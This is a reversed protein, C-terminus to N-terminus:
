LRKIPHPTPPNLINRPNNHRPSIVKRYTSLLYERSEGLDSDMQDPTAEGHMFPNVPGQYNMESLAKLWPTFDVPGIGPLQKRGGELQWAYFFKL